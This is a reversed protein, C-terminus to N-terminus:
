QLGLDRGLDQRRGPDGPRRHVQLAFDLWAGPGTRPWRAVKPLFARDVPYVAFDAEPDGAGKLVEGEVAAGRPLESCAALLALGVRWLPSTIRSM